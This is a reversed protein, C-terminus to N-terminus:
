PKIIIGKSFLSQLWLFSNDWLSSSKNYLCWHWMLKGAFVEYRWVHLYCTLIKVRWSIVTTITLYYITGKFALESPIESTNIYYVINCVRKHIHIKDERTWSSIESTQQVWEHSILNIVRLHFEYGHEPM